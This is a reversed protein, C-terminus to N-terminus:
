VMEHVAQKLSSTDDAAGAQADRQEVRDLRGGLFGAGQPRPLPSPAKGGESSGASSASTRRSKSNSLRRRKPLLRAFRGAQRRRKDGVAAFLELMSLQHGVRSRVGLVLKVIRNFEEAGGESAEVIALLLARDRAKSCQANRVDLGKTLESQDHEGCASPVYPVHLDRMSRRMQVFVFIEILTWLRSPYTTGALVVFQQCAAIWVPLCQLNESIRSQDVCFRDLQPSTLRAPPAGPRDAPPM